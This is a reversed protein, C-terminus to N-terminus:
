RHVSQFQIAFVQFDSLLQLVSEFIEKADTSNLPNVLQMAYLPLHLVLLLL